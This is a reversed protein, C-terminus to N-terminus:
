QKIIPFVQAGSSMLEDDARLCHHVNLATVKWRRKVATQKTDWSSASLRTLAARHLLWCAASWDPQFVPRPAKETLTWKVTRNWIGERGHLLGASFELWFRGPALQQSLTRLELCLCFVDTQTQYASIVIIVSICRLPTIIRQYKFAACLVKPPM